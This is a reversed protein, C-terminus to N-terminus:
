SVVEATVRGVGRSTLGIARAAGTSLDLVRGRIFPGRDNITVVVSQSGHTVRLKTGFPLSRHAATMANQNFRQGSATKSGSENGYFSAMGSFSRGTGSTPNMSANANRWDSGANTDAQAHHRHHHKHHRSKASAETATGGILLTAAVFAIATRPRTVFGLTKLSLM